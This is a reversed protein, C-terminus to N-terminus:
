RTGIPGIAGRNAAADKAFSWRAYYSDLLPTGVIYLAGFKTHKDLPVLAPMCLFEQATANEQKLLEPIVRFLM